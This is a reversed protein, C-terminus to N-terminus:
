RMYAVFLRVSMIVKLTVSYVSIYIVEAFYYCKRRTMSTFSCMEFKINM